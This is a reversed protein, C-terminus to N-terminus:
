ERAWRFQIRAQSEPAEALKELWREALEVGEAYEDGPERQEGRLTAGWTRRRVPLRHERGASGGAGTRGAAEGLGGRQDVGGDLPVAAAQEGALRDGAM